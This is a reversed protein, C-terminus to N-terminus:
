SPPMSYDNAVAARLGANVLLSDLAGMLEGPEVDPALAKVTPSLSGFCASAPIASGSARICRSSEYELLDLHAPPAVTRM